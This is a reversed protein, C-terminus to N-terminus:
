TADGDALMAILAEACADPQRAGSAWRVTTSKAMKRGTKDEVFRRLRVQNGHVALWTRPPTLDPM